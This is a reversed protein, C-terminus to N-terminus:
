EYCLNTVQIRFYKNDNTVLRPFILTEGMLKLGYKGHCTLVLETWLTEQEKKQM